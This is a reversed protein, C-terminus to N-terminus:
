HRVSHGWIRKITSSVYVLLTDMEEKWRRLLDDHFTKVAEAAETRVKEKQEKTFESYLEERIEQANHNCSPLLSRHESNADICRLHQAGRAIFLRVEATPFTWPTDSAKEAPPVVPNLHDVEGLMATDDKAM